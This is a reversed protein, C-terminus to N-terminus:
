QSCQKVGEIRAVLLRIPAELSRFGTATRNAMQRSLEVSNRQNSKRFYLHKYLIGHIQSYLSADQQAREMETGAHASSRNIRTMPLIAFSLRRESLLYWGDVIILAVKVFLEMSLVVTESNSNGFEKGALRRLFQM